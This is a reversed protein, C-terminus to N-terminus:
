AGRTRGAIARVLLLPWLAAAGPVIVVRFALSGRASADDMRPALFVTFVVAFGVGIALYVGVLVLVLSM